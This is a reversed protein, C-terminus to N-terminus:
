TLCRLSAWRFAMICLCACFRWCICFSRSAQSMRYSSAHYPQRYISLTWSEHLKVLMLVRQENLRAIWRGFTCCRSESTRSFSLRSSWISSQTARISCPKVASEPCSSVAIARRTSRSEVQVRRVALSPHLVPQCRAYTHSGSSPNTTQSLTIYIKRWEWPEATM